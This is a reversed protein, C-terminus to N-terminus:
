SAGRSGRLSQEVAPRIRSPHPSRPQLNVTCQPTRFACLVDRNPSMGIYTKGDGCLDNGILPLGRHGTTNQYREEASPTYIACSRGFDASTLRRCLRKAELPIPARRNEEHSLYHQRISYHRGIEEYGIPCNESHWVTQIESGPAQAPGTARAPPDAAFAVCSILEILGLWALCKGSFVFMTAGGFTSESHRWAFPIVVSLNLIFSPWSAAAPVRPTRM